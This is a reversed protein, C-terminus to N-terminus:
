RWKGGAHHPYRVQAYKWLRRQLLHHGRLLRSMVPRVPVELIETVERHSLGLLDARIM